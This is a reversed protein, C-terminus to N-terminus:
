YHKSSSTACLNLVLENLLTEVYWMDTKKTCSFKQEYREGREVQISFTLLSLHYIAQPHITNFIEIIRTHLHSILRPM